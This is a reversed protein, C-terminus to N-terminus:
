LLGLKRAANEVKNLGKAFAEPTFKADDISVHYLNKPDNLKIQPLTADGKKNWTVGLSINMLLVDKKKPSCDSYEGNVYFGVHLSYGGKLTKEINLSGHYCERSYLVPEDLGNDNSRTWFGDLSALATDLEAREAELVARFDKQFTAPSKGAEKAARYSLSLVTLRQQEEEMAKMENDFKKTWKAM